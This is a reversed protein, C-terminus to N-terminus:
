PFLDAPVFFIGSALTESSSLGIFTSKLFSANVLETSALRLSDLFTDFCVTVTSDNLNSFLSV